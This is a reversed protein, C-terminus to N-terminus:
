IIYKMIKHVSKKKRTAIKRQRKNDLSLKILSIEERYHFNSLTLFFISNQTLFNRHHSLKGKPNVKTSFYFDRQDNQLNEAPRFEFWGDSVCGRSRAFIWIFTWYMKGWDSWDFYCSRSVYILMHLLICLCRGCLVYEMEKVKGRRIHKKECRSFSKAVRSGVHQQIAISIFWTRTPLNILFKFKKFMNKISFVVLFKSKFKIFFYKESKHCAGFVEMTFLIKERKIHECLMNVGM